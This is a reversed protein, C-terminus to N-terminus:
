EGQEAKQIMADELLIREIMDKLPKRFRIGYTDRIRLYVPLGGDEILMVLRAGGPDAPPRIGTDRGRFHITAPAPPPNELQHIQENIHMEVQPPNLIDELLATAEQKMPWPDWSESDIAARLIKIIRQEHKLKIKM